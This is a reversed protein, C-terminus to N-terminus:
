LMFPSDAYLSEFEEFKPYMKLEPINMENVITSSGRNALLLTLYHLSERDTNCKFGVIVQNAPIQQMTTWRSASHGEAWTVSKILKKYQDFFRIGDYLLGYRMKMSVFRIERGNLISM